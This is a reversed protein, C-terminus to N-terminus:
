LIPAPPCGYVAGVNQVLGQTIKDCATGHFVLSQTAGDYTYGNMQDNPQAVGDLQGVVLTPDPPAPQLQFACSATQGIIADFATILAAADNAQYYKRAPDNRATHGKDAWDNLLSPNSETESGIGIVFTKVSPSRNYMEDIVNGVDSASNCSPLGDTVLVVYNSRDLASLNASDRVTKLADATPTSGRPNALASNTLSNVKTLIAQETGAALAVDVVAKGCTNQSPNPPFLSLGWHAKGTSTVLLNTLATQAADWKTGSQSGGFEDSMSGSRDVVLYVNPKVASVAVAFTQAGCAEPMTPTPDIPTPEPPADAKEPQKEGSPTRQASEPLPPFCGAAGSLIGILLISPKRM